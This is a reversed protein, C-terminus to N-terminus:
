MKERFLVKKKGEFLTARDGQNQECVRLKVSILVIQKQFFHLM